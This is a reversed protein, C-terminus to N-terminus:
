EINKTSRGAKIIDSIFYELEKNFGVPDAAHLFHGLGEMFIANIHPEFTKRKDHPVNLGSMIAKIPVDIRGLLDLVNWRLMEELESLFVEHRILPLDNFEKQVNEPIMKGHNMHYSYLERISKEPNERFQAVTKHVEEEPTATYGVGEWPFFTDVGILGIIKNGLLKAAELIVPGGMSWGILIVNPFSQDNIVAAVDEGYAKMTFKEREAVSKEHGALDIFILKFKSSLIRQFRWHDILGGAGYVFCLTPDGEGEVEYYIQSGDKSNVKPM